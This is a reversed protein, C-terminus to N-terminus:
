CLEAVGGLVSTIASNGEAVGNLGTAEFVPRDGGANLHRRIEIHCTGWAYVYGRPQDGDIWSRGVVASRSLTRSESWVPLIEASRKRFCLSTPVPGRFIDLRIETM